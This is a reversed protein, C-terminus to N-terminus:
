KKISILNKSMNVIWRWHLIIHLTILILLIVATWRHIDGWTHRSFIFVTYATDVFFRGGYYGYGSPLILWRVLGSIALIVVCLFQLCDIM